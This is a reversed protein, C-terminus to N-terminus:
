IEESIISVEAATDVIAARDINNVRIPVKYAPCSGASMAGLTSERHTMGKKKSSLVESGHGPPDLGNVIERVLSADLGNTIKSTFPPDLGKPNVM